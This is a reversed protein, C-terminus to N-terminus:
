EFLEITKAAAAKEEILFNRARLTDLHILAGKRLIYKMSADLAMILALDLDTYAVARIAEVEGDLKRNPEIADALFIIKTLLSMDKKGTTHFVIADHIEEDDFGYIENALEAGVYAHLLKPERKSVHDLSIKKARCMRYLKDHPIDKACDHLLGTIRAKETDYGYTQALKQATQAVGMTHTFRYPTLDQKLRAIIEQETM